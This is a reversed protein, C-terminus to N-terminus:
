DTNSLKIVIFFSKSIESIKMKGKNKSKNVSSFPLEMSLDQEAEISEGQDNKVKKTVKWPVM